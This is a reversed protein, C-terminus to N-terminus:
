WTFGSGPYAFTGKYCLGDIVRGGSTERTAYCHYGAPGNHLVVKGAGTVHRNDFKVIWSKAAACTWTGIVEGAIKQGKLTFTRCIANDRAAAGATSATALAVTAAVAVAVGVLRMTRSM